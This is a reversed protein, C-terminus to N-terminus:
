DEENSLALQWSVELYWDSTKTIAAFTVRSILEGGATFLGAETLDGNAVSSDFTCALLALGGGPATLSDLGQRALETELATDSPAPPLPLTVDGPAHGGTGVAIFGPADDGALASVILRALVDLGSDVVLNHAQVRRREGDACGLTLVVRGQVKLSSRISPRDSM